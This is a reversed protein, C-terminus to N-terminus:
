RGSQITHNLLNPRDLMASQSRRLQYKPQLNKLKASALRQELLQKQLNPISDLGPPPQLPRNSSSLFSDSWDSSSQQQQLTQLLVSDILSPATTSINKPAVAPPSWIAALEESIPVCNNSSSTPKPNSLNAVPDIYASENLKSSSIAISKDQFRINNRSSVSTETDKGALRNTSPSLNVREDQQLDDFSHLVEQSINGLESKSDDVVGSDAPSPPTLPTKSPFLASTQDQQSIKNSACTTIAAVFDSNFSQNQQLLIQSQSVPQFHTLHQDQIDSTIVSDGFASLHSSNFTAM